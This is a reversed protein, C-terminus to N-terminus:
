PVPAQSMDTPGRVYPRGHSWLVRDIRMLRPRNLGRTRGAYVLWSGGSPGTVLSGGGASLVTASDALLPNARAKVFLGTPSSATAYGMGYRGRWAGGSYFLFYTAGRRVMWPGEVVPGWPAQEWTGREGSFLGLRGGSAHMLDQGLAIVSLTPRRRCRARDARPSCAAGTSLYLYARGDDDLFPDPDINSYGAADGCGIPWDSLGGSPRAPGGSPGGSRADELIGRDTFPGAPRRATAVGICSVGLRASVGGYYLIFCPGAQAGPCPRAVQLVSPAWADWQRARVVWGPRRAFATGVSRWRVLDTSHLVPFRDGTSYAYYDHHAGSVDLVMPDPLARAYLPNRYTVIRYRRQARALTLASASQLYACLYGSWLARPMAGIEGPEDFRGRVYAALRRNPERRGEELANRACRLASSYVSVRSGAAPAVGSIRFRLAPKAGTRVEAVQRLRLNQGAARVAPPSMASLLM